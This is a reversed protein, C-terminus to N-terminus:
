KVVGMGVLVGALFAIGLLVPHFWTSVRRPQPVRSRIDAVAETMTPEIRYVIKM